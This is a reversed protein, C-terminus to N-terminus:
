PVLSRISLLYGCSNTSKMIFRGLLLRKEESAIYWTVTKDWINVTDGLFESANSVTDIDPDNEFSFVCETPCQDFSSCNCIGLLCLLTHVAARDLAAGHRGHYIKRAGETLV